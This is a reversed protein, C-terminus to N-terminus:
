GSVTGLVEVKLVEVKLVESKLYRHHEFPSLFRFKLYEGPSGVFGWLGRTSFNVGGFFNM